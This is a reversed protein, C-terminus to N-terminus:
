GSRLSPDWASQSRCARQLAMLDKAESLVVSFSRLDEGPVRWELPARKQQDFLFLECHCEHTKSPNKAAFAHAARLAATGATEHHANSREEIGPFAPKEGLGIGM